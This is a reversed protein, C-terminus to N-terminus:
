SKSAEQVLDKGLQALVEAREADEVHMATYADITDVLEVPRAKGDEDELDGLYEEVRSRLAGAMPIPKVVVNRLGAMLGSIASPDVDSPLDIRYYDTEPIGPIAKSWNYPLIYFRPAVKNPTEVFTEEISGDPAIDLITYGPTYDAEGFDNQLPSGIYKIHNNIQQRKHFHGSFVQIDDDIASPKIGGPPAFEHAGHVAGEFSHHMLAIKTFRPYQAMQKNIDEVPVGYSACCIIVDKHWWKEVVWMGEVRTVPRWSAEGGLFPVISVGNIDMDHNGTMVTLDTSNLLLDMFALEIQNAIAPTLVGHHHTTDGLIFTHTIDRGKMDESIWQMTKTVNALRTNVGPTPTPRGFVKHNAFHPDGILAIKM